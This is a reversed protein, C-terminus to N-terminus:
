GFLNMIGVIGMLMGSVVLPSFFGWIKWCSIIFGLIGLTSTVTAIPIYKKLTEDRNWLRYNPPPTHKIYPLYFNLYLFILFTISLSIGSLYFLNRAWGDLSLIFQVSSPVDFLWCVLSSLVIWRISTLLRTIRSKRKSKRTVTSSSDDSSDEMSIGITRRRVDRDDSM